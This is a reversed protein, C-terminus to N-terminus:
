KQKQDSWDEFRPGDGSLALSRATHTQITRAAPVGAMDELSSMGSGASGFTERLVDVQDTDNM